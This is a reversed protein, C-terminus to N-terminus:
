EAAQIPIIKAGFMGDMSDQGGRTITYRYYIKLVSFRKSNLFDAYFRCFHSSVFSVKL